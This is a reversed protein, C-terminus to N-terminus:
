RWAGRYWVSSYVGRAAGNDWRDQQYGGIVDLAGDGNRDVTSAAVWPEVESNPYVTGPQGAVDDATCGAFPSSGSVQQLAGVSAPSGWAAPASFLTLAAAMVLVRRPRTAHM